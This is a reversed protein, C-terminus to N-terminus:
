EQETSKGSVTEREQQKKRRVEEVAERVAAEQEGKMLKRASAFMRILNSAFIWLLPLIVLLVFGVPSSLCNVAMGLPYSTFIVKGVLNQGLAPYRDPLANADGKTTFQYQNGEQEISVVRHTNVAGKLEPDTSYYSIIDNERIMSPETQKVVILSDTRIGPEMSGTMVRLASYGFIDPVSGQRTLLVTLLVFIAAAIMIMSLLNLITSFLKRM